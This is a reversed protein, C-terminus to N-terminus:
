KNFVAAIPHCGLRVPPFIKTFPLDRTEDKWDYVFGDFGKMSQAHIHGFEQPTRKLYLYDDVWYLRYIKRDPYAAEIRELLTPEPKPMEEPKIRYKYNAFNFLSWNRNLIDDWTQGTRFKAQITKGDVLAQMVEIAEHTKM